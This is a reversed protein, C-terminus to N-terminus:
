PAPETTFFNVAGYGIGASTIVYARYYYTTAPELEVMISTFTTENPGEDTKFNYLYPNPNTSWCLGSTNISAGGNSIVTGSSEASNHTINIPKQTTLTAILPENDTPPPTIAPDKECSVALMLLLVISVLIHGIPYSSKKM